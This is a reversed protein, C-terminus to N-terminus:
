GATVVLSVVPDEAPAAQVDFPDSTGDHAFLTGGVTYAVHVSVTAGALPTGGTCNPTAATSDDFSLSPDSASWMYTAGLAALDVDQGAKGVGKVRCPFAVGVTFPGPM